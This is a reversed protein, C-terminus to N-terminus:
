TNWHGRLLTATIGTSDVHRSADPKAYPLPLPETGKESGGQKPRRRADPTSENFYQPSSGM